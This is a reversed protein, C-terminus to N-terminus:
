EAVSSRENAAAAQLQIRQIAILIIIGYDLSFKMPM